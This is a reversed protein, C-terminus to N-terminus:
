SDMDTRARNCQHVVQIPSDATIVDHSTSLAGRVVGKARRGRYLANSRYTIMLAAVPRTKHCEDNNGRDHDIERKVFVLELIKQNM